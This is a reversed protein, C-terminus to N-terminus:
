RNNEPFIILEHRKQYLLVLCKTIFAFFIFTFLTYSKPKNSQKIPVSASQIETFAPTKEQVKAKALQLQQAVQTYINYKLQMENELDAQKSKFSELLLDQNADAYSGYLQRSRTYQEKAERCLREMYEADSRAKNTRYRTIFLQLRSKISDAMTAAILPDEATVEISIVSTKKDVTCQINKSIAGAVDSQEKTLMFPDIKKNDSKTPRSLIWSIPKMWFPTTQKSKIYDYYCINIKGDKSKVKINFLGVIFQNSKMLDPYVEPFIADSMNGLNMNMGVMSALSSLNSTLNNSSSGEPALMVSSKYIEPSGFAISLGIIAGVFCYLLTQKRDQNLVRLFRILDIGIRHNPREQTM